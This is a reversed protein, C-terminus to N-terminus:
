YYFGSGQATSVAQSSSWGLSGSTNTVGGAAFGIVDSGANIYSNLRTTGSTDPAVFGKVPKPGYDYKSPKRPDQFVRRPTKLPKPRHPLRSPKLMKQAFAAMDATRQDLAVEELTSILDRRNSTLAEVLIATNRGHAAKVAQASKDASRGMVGRAKLSDSKLLAQIHLDQFEFSKEKEINALREYEKEVAMKASTANINVQEHFLEESKAFQQLKGEYQLEKIQLEHNWARLNISDKYVAEAESNERQIGVGEKLYSYQNKLKQKSYNWRTTNLKHQKKTHKKRAEHQQKEAKAKNHGQWLGAGIKLAAAGILLGATVPEINHVLGSMQLQDKWLRNSGPLGIQPEEFMGFM